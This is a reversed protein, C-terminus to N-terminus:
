QRGGGALVPPIDPTAAFLNVVDVDGPALTEGRSAQRALRGIAVRLMEADRFEREGSTAAVEPFRDQLWSGLAEADDVSRWEDNDPEDLGGTYSFDLALSGSDFWWHLGDSDDM